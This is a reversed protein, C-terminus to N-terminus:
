VLLRGEFVRAVPGEMSVRGDPEIEVALPGGSMHVTLESGALGRRHAVAAAACASTGSALTRGAGREWIEIRIDRPGEVELLQVNTRNPFREHVELRPGFRLCDAECVADREVVCHPNGLDVVSCILAEGDVEIREGLAEFRARGMRVRVSGLEGQVRCEVRGGLTQVPFSEDRVRGEDWLFRAFIRLGNGSKEAESGDPNFIRLRFPEQLTGVLVGDSGVGLHRDCVRRVWGADPRPGVENERFVLYDNGLAQYKVFRV